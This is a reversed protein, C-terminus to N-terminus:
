NVLYVETWDLLEQNVQDLRTDDSPEIGTWEAIAGAILEELAKLKEMQYGPPFDLANDIAFGLIGLKDNVEEPSLYPKPPQEM